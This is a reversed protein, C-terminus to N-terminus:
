SESNKHKSISQKAQKEALRKQQAQEKTFQERRAQWKLYTEALQPTTMRQQTQLPTEQKQCDCDDDYLLVDIAMFFADFCATEDAPCFFRSHVALERVTTSDSLRLERRMHQFLAAACSQPTMHLLKKRFFFEQIAPFKLWFLGALLALTLIVFGWWMVVQNEAQTGDPLDMSPVTPEFSLWGYGSIYVEPFAHADRVKILYNTEHGGIKFNYLESLHYGQTYRAPLGASRCLLVMATAFEYCVGTQSQMLFYEANEGKSKRYSQDYVFNQKLFYQEIAQAKEFDSELGDTIEQALSSIVESESDFVNVFSLYAYAEASEQQVQQLLEAQEPRSSELIRIADSLLASYNQCSLKKLVPNVAEYKAYTDSYYQLSVGNAFNPASVTNMVSQGVQDKSIESGLLMTRTPSPLVQTTFRTYLYLNQLEQEPLTVGCFEELGYKEAFEPSVSAADLIAQLLTQPKYTMPEELNRSPRDYTESVTWSDEASNYYSYTQTRLRLSEPADVYYITRTNNSTSVTNDTTDTFMSIANMLIDSWSSYSMANDIFERDPTIVPKPIVSALVSFAIVYLAISIKSQSSSVYRQKDTDRLVRCYIMLLFYSALLVMVLIAPMHQGEKAYFSLPILMILFQMSMRYRIKAFYYVISTLFGLMLLYIAATYWGSFSVVSQPTLFWVLFSIPYGRQGWNVIMGILELGAFMYVLYCLPGIWKHKAVFDYFKMMGWSVPIAILAYLYFRDAHYYYMVTMVLFVAYAQVPDDSSKWFKQMAPTKLFNQLQLKLHM